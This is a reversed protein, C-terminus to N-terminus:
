NDFDLKNDAASNPNLGHKTEWWDPMGDADTDWGPPRTTPSAGTVLAFESPVPATAPIGGAPQTNNQVNGVIRADIAHRKWWWNGVYNIVQNYAAAAGTTTVPPAAFPSAAQDSIPLASGDSVQFM